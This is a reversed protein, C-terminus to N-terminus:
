RQNKVNYKQIDTRYKFIQCKKLKEVQNKRESWRKDM